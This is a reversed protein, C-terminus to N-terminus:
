SFGVLLGQHSHDRNTQSGRRQLASHPLPHRPPKSNVRRSKFPSTRMEEELRSQLPINPFTVYHGKEMERKNIKAQADGEGVPHAVVETEVFCVQCIGAKSTLNPSLGRASSSLWCWNPPCMGEKRLHKSRQPERGQPRLYM